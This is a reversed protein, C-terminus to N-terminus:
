TMLPTGSRQDSNAAREVRTILYRVTEDLSAEGREPSANIRPDEEARVTFDSTPRGCFSPGDVIAWDLNRLPQPLPPLASLDVLSQHLFLMRSVEDATAHGGGNEPYDQGDKAWAFLSLVQAPGAATFEAALRDLVAVHNPAGHGNVVAIVRFGQWVLRDLMERVLLGFFEERVYLSKLSNAPFDMGVVYEGESGPFGLSRLQRPARERETGWFFPPLVVGGTARAVREAVGLAILPDTGLPLHPGHWELPGVPLFALSSGAMRALIQDPRLRELRLEARDHDSADGATM